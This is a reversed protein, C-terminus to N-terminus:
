LEREKSKQACLLKNLEQAVIEYGKTNPHLNDDSLGEKYNGDAGALKSFMNVFKMGSEACFGALRKNIYVVDEISTVKSNKIPYLSQVVVKKQSTEQIHEAFSAIEQFIEEPSKKPYDEDYYPWFFDNIGCQLVILDYPTTDIQPYVYKRLMDSAYNETGCKYFDFTDVGNEANKKQNYSWDINLKDKPIYETISDGFLLIKM